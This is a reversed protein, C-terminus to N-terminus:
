GRGESSAAPNAPQLSAPPANRHYRFSGEGFAVLTGNGDFVEAQAFFISKGGGRVRGVARLPGIRAPAVFSTTLTLTSVKPQAGPVDAFTGAFGCATDILSVLVGGHVVESRNLHRSGIDMELVAEDERWQQLRYGMAQQFGSPREGGIASLVPDDFADSM